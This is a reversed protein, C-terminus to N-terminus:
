RAGEGDQLMIEHGVRTKLSRFEVKGNKAAVRQPKDKGNWLGGVVYPRNMDGHEFAVLVEDNVEPTMLLGRTAGAGPSAVRAWNSEHENDLWPYKVKVREM